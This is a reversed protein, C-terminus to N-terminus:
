WLHVKELLNKTFIKVQYSYAYFSFNLLFYGCAILIPLIKKPFSTVFYAIGASALIILYPEIPLRFRPSGYTILALIFAYLVPLYIVLLERFRKYMVITGFIFFPFIFGYTYNYIGNGIIEWDFPTWFYATKLLELRLVRWPHEKIFKLTLKILFNSEKTESGLLKAKETNEDSINFGYIKGDKPFYSYYLGLGTRTVIPIFKHHMTWNRVAWPLIPLIFFFILIFIAFIRKKINYGKPVLRKGMFVAIFLPFFVMVSRILSAIGLTIGLLALCKYDKAKIQKLLLLIAITLMFTYLNESLLKESIKILSPCFAALISALIAIRTDFLKKALLFIIVCVLAGLIAQIIRVVTYNHGFFYYIGALFLSYLPERSSTPKGAESFGKGELIGIAQHDYGLADSSPIEVSHFALFIRPLLAILFIAIILLRHKSSIM